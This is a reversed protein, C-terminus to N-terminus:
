GPPNYLMEPYWYQMIGFGFVAAFFMGIDQSILLLNIVLEREYFNLNMDVELNTKTNALFTFNTYETGAQTGIWICWIFTVNFNTIIPVFLNVAFVICNFLQFFTPLSPFRLTMTQLSSLGVVNGLNYAFMLVLYEQQVFV